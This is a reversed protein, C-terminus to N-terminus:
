APAAVLGLQTLLEVQDFYLVFDTVQDGAFDCVNVFPVSVARGTPAIDGSPARLVATHTGEFVAEVVGSGGGDVIRITRCRNDPFSDQWLHYFTSVIEPGSGRLGGPGALTANGTFLSSWGAEDKANWRELNKELLGRGDM